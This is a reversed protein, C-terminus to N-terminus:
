QHHETSFNNSCCFFDCMFILKIYMIKNVSFFSWKFVGGYKVKKKTKEEVEADLQEVVVAPTDV